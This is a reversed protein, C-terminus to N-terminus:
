RIAAGCHVSVRERTFTPRLDENSRTVAIGQPREEADDSASQLEHLDTARASFLANYESDRMLM